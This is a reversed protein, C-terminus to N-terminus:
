RLGMWRALGGARASRELKTIEELLHRQGNSPVGARERRATTRTVLTRTVPEPPPHILHLLPRDPRDLDLEEIEPPWLMPGPGPLVEVNRRGGVVGFTIEDGVWRGLVIQWRLGPRVEDVYTELCEEMFGLADSRRFAFIGSNTKLYRELGFREMLSRTSFGHHRVDDDRTLQEGLMALPEKELVDFVRDLPGLVVSDADVFVTEEFPSAEATGYKLARGDRFRDPLLTLHDFVGEFESRVVKGLDEDTALAVPLDTHDRLSLAMDVAMELYHRPGVALTLFGRPSSM